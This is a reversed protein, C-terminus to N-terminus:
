LHKYININTQNLHYLRQSTPYYLRKSTPYSTPTIHQHTLNPFCVKRVCILASAVIVLLIKIGQSLLRKYVNIFM